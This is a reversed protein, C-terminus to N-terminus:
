QRPDPAFIAGPGEGIGRGSSTGIPRLAPYTLIKCAGNTCTVVVAEGDPSVDVYAVDRLAFAGLVNSGVVSRLVVKSSMCTLVGMEDTSFAVDYSRGIRVPKADAAAHVSQGITSL